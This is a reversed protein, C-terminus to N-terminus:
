KKLKLENFYIWKNNIKDYYINKINIKYLISEYKQKIICLLYLLILYFYVFIYTYIFEFFPLIIISNTHNLLITFQWIKKSEIIYKSKDSYIINNNILDNIKIYNSFLYNNLYWYIGDFTKLYNSTIPLYKIKKFWDLDISHYIFKYIIKIIPKKTRIENKLIFNTYLDHHIFVTDFVNLQKLLEFNKQQKIILKYIDINYNEVLYIFSNYFKLYLLFRYNFWYLNEKYLYENYLKEKDLNKWIFYKDYYVWYEKRKNLYFYYYNSNFKDIDILFYQDNKIKHLYTYIYNLINYKNNILNKYMLITNNSNYDKINNILIDDFFKFVDFIILNYFQLESLYKKFFYFNYFLLFINNDKKSFFPLNYSLDSFTYFIKREQMLFRTPEEELYSNLKRDNIAYSKFFRGNNHYYRYNAIKDILVDDNILLNNKKIGNFYNFGNFYKTINYFIEQYFRILNDMMEQEIINIYFYREDQMDYDVMSLYYEMAVVVDTNIPQRLGSESIFGASLEYYMETGLIFSYFPILFFSFSSIWNINNISNHIIYNRYVNMLVIGDDGLFFANQMYERFINEWEDKSLAEITDDWYAEAIYDLTGMAEMERKINNIKSYDAKLNKFLNQEYLYPIQFWMNTHYVPICYMFYRQSIFLLWNYYNHEFKEIFKFEKYFLINNFNPYKVLFTNWGKYNFFLDFNEDIVNNWAGKYNWNLYTLNVDLRSFISLYPLLLSKNFFILWDASMPVTAFDKVRNKENIFLDSYLLWIKKNSILYPFLYKLNSNQKITINKSLIWFMLLPYQLRWYYLENYNLRQLSFLKLKYTKFLNKLKYINNPHILSQLRENMKLDKYFIWEKTLFHLYTFRANSPLFIYNYKDINLFKILKVNKKEIWFRSYNGHLNDYKLVIYDSKKYFFFQYNKFFFLTNVYWNWYTNKFIKKNWLNKIIILQNQFFLNNNYSKNLKKKNDFQKDEYLFVKKKTWLYYDLNSNQYYYYNWILNGGLIHNLGENFYYSKKKSFVFWKEWTFEPNRAISWDNNNFTFFFWKNLIILFYQLIKYLFFLYILLFFFTIRNIHMSMTYFTKFFFLNKWEYFFLNRMVNENFINYVWSYQEIKYIYTPWTGLPHVDEILKYKYNLINQQIFDINMNLFNFLMENWYFILNYIFLFFNLFINFFFFSYFIINLKEFIIFFFYYYFYLIIYYNLCIYYIIYEFLFFSILNLIKYIINIIIFKFVVIFLYLFINYFFEFFFYIYLYIYIFSSYVNFVFFNKLESYNYYLILNNYDFGVYYKHFVSDRFFGHVIHQIVNYENGKSVYLGLYDWGLRYFFSFYQLGYIWNEPEKNNIISFFFRVIAHLVSHPIWIYFTNKYESFSYSKLSFSYAKRLSMYVSNLYYENLLKLWTNIFIKFNLFYSYTVDNWIIFYNLKKLLFNFIFDIYLLEFSYNIFEFVFFFIYIYNQCFFLFNLLYGLDLINLNLFYILFLYMLFIIKYKQIFFLLYNFWKNILIEFCILSIYKIKNFYLFLFFFNKLNLIKLNNKNFFIQFIKYFFIFIYFFIFKFYIEFKLYKLFGTNFIIFFLINNFLFNKIFNNLPKLIFNEFELNIFINSFFYKNKEKHILDVLNFDFIYIKDSFLFINLNYFFFSFKFEFVNFINLINIFLININWDKWISKVERYLKYIFFYRYNIFIDRKHLLAIFITSYKWYSFFGSDSINDFLDRFMKKKKNKLISFSNVLKKFYFFKYFYIFWYFFFSYYIKLTFLYTWNIKFKWSGDLNLKILYDSIFNFFFYKYYNQYIILLKSIFNNYFKLFICIFFFYFYMKLLFIFYFWIFKYSKNIQSNILNINLINEKRLLNIHEQYKLGSKVIIFKNYIFLILDFNIFNITNFDYTKLQMLYNKNIFINKQKFKYNLYIFFFTLINNIYVIFFYKKLKSFNIIIDKSMYIYIYYIYIYFIFFFIIFIIYDFFIWPKFLIVNLIDLHKYFIYYYSWNKSINLLQFYKLVGLFYNDNKIKFLYKLENINKYNNFYIDNFFEGKKTLELVYVPLLNIKEYLYINSISTDILNNKNKIFFIDFFTLNKFIDLKIFNLFFLYEFYDKNNLFYILGKVKLASINTNYNKNYFNDLFKNVFFYENPTKTYIYFLFKKFINLSLLEYNKKSFIGFSQLNFHQVIEFLDTFIDILVLGFYKIEKYYYLMFLKKEFLNVNIGIFYRKFDFITYYNWKWNSLNLVSIQMFEDFFIDWSVFVRDDVLLYFKLIWDWFWWLRGYINDSIIFNNNKSFNLFIFIDKLIFDLYWLSFLPKVQWFIYSNFYSFNHTNWFALTKLYKVGNIDYLEYWNKILRGNYFYNINATTTWSYFVKKNNKYFINDFYFNEFFITNNTIIFNNEFFNILNNALNFNINIFCMNENYIFIDLM